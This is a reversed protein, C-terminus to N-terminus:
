SSTGIRPAKNSAKGGGGNGSLDTTIVGSTWSVLKDVVAADAASTTSSGAIVTVTDITRAGGDDITDLNIEKKTVAAGGNISTGAAVVDLAERLRIKDSSRGQLAINVNKLGPIGGSVSYGSGYLGSFSTM